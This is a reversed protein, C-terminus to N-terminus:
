NSFVPLTGTAKAIEQATERSFNWYHIQLHNPLGTAQKQGSVIDVASGHHVFRVPVGNQIQMSRFHTLEDGNLPRVEAFESSPQLLAYPQCQTLIKM